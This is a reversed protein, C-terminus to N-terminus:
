EADAQQEPAAARVADLRCLAQDIRVIEPYPSLDCDFRRANYVQPVLCCDALTINDGYCYVGATSRFRAELAGFGLAVWHRYWQNVAADDQGLQQKLYALVRLNNLPHIECAIVQTLARVEARERPKRPLLSPEPHTEELYELIALSQALYWDQEQWLPLLGQPNKALFEPTKHQGGDTRFHIPVAQYDLGKLNLAIRVRYAASSRWFTYLKAVCSSTEM